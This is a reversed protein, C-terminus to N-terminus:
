AAPAHVGQRFDAVVSDVLGLRGSSIQCVQNRGNGKADYLARDALHILEEAVMDGTPILAAVGISASVLGFESQAHRVGLGIVAARMREAVLRAADADVDPMIIAFEEGGYRAVIDVHQRVSSQLSAAVQRLCADGALHGYHDNYKKFHDVDVMVIAIWNPRRMARAWERDLADMFHRRNFLGTLVDTNSLVELLQNAESLERTREAVKKELSAYMLANELSVALQGAILSVADLREAAFAGRSLRNELLLMAQSVGQKRIPVFLLSCCAVGTFYDDRAFRDDRTADEVILTEGSHQVFHFASLPLLRQRGAAELSIVDSPSAGSAPPLYWAGSEHDCLILRVITAGTLAGLTETVRAYLRDLMTESSLAQSARLIGLLDITDSTLGSSSGQPQGTRGTAIRPQTALATGHREEIQRLKADAGWAQYLRYAAAMLSQGTNSLGQELHLLAAREILLAQHWPRQARHALTIGDDFARQAAWYDGNAWALEGDLLHVLHQYNGPADAARRVLWRHSVDFEVHLAAKEAAKACRLRRALALGQLMHALAVPYFGDISSLLPMAAAAHRVLTDGDDFLAAALARYIHLYASGLRNPGLSAIHAAEDFDATSFSGPEATPGQLARVLQRFTVYSAVSHLNGTRAGFALAADM